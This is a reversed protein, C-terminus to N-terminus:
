RSRERLVARLRRAAALALAGVAIAFLVVWATGNVARGGDNAAEAPPPSAPAPPSAAADPCRFRGPSPEDAVGSDLLSGDDAFCRHLARGAGPAPLSPEGPRRFTTDAGYSLADVIAGQAGYLVLRDGANALGNSLGGPPRFVIAQDVRAQAGAIVISAGPPLTLRPLEIAGHNDQLTYGVLTLAEVGVNTLEVWEFPADPGAEAPDPMLETIRLVGASPRAPAAEGVDESRPLM